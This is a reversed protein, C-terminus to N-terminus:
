SAAAGEASRKAKPASGVVTEHIHETAQERDPLHPTMHARRRRVVVYAVVALVAVPILLRILQSTGSRRHSRGPLSISPLSVSPLSISPLSISPLSSARDSVFSVTEHGWDHALENISGAAARGLSAVEDAATELLHPLDISM